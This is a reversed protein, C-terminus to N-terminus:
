GEDEGDDDADDEEDIDTVAVAGPNLYLTLYEEARVDDGLETEIEANLADIWGRLRELADEPTEAVVRACYGVPGKVSDGLDFHFSTLKSM